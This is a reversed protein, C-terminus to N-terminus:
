LWTILHHQESASCPHAGLSRVVHAGRVLSLDIPASVRYSLLIDWANEVNSKVIKQVSGKKKNKKEKERKKNVSEKHVFKMAANGQVVSRVKGWKTAASQPLAMSPQHKAGAGATQNRDSHPPMGKEVDWGVNALSENVDGLAM